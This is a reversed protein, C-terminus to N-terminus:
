AARGYWVKIGASHSSVPPSISSARARTSRPLANLTMSPRKINSNRRVYPVSSARRITSCIMLCEIGDSSTARSVRSHVTVGQAHLLCGDEPTEGADVEHAAFLAGGRRERDVARRDFLEFALPALKSQTRVSCSSADSCRAFWDM